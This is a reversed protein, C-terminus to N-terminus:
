SMLTVNQALVGHLIIVAYTNADLASINSPLTLVFRNSKTGVFNINPEFIACQAPDFQNSAAAATVVVRQTQPVQLFDMLARNPVITSKNITVAFFGNYFTNLPATVEGGAAGTAFVNVDPFTQLRFATDTSSAALALFIQVSSAFFSDQQNLRIETSRVPNSNGTENVLMPFVFSNQTILLPQELRLYSQSLVANQAEITADKLSYGSKVYSDVIANFARAFVEQQGYQSVVAM